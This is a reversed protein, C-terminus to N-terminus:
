YEEEDESRELKSLVKQCFESLEKTTGINLSKAALKCIENGNYYQLLHYLAREAAFKVRVVKHDKARQLILPIMVNLHPIFVQHNKKAAAKISHLVTVRVDTSSDECMNTLKAVFVDKNVNEQVILFTSILRAVCQRIQVKDSLACETIYNMLSEQDVGINKVSIISTLATLHGHAKKYDVTPTVSFLQTLTSEREEKTLFLMFPGFCSSASMRVEDDNLYQFFSEKLSQLVDPKPALKADM